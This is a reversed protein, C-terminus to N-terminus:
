QVKPFLTDNYQNPSVHDRLVLLNSAQASTFRRCMNFRMCGTSPRLRYEPRQARANRIAPLEHREACGIFAFPSSDDVQNCDALVALLWRALQPFAAVEKVDHQNLDLTSGSTARRHAVAASKAFHLPNIPRFRNNLKLPQVSLRGPVLM